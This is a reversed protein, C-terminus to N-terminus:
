TLKVKPVRRGEIADTATWLRTTRASQATVHPDHPGQVLELM